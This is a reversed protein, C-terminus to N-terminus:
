HGDLYQCRPDRAGMHRYFFYSHAPCGGSCTQYHMCRSYRCITSNVARFRELVAHNLISDLGDRKINGLHFDTFGILLNCPFVSGDPLIALKVSGADCRRHTHLGYKHFGSAAVFGIDLTGQLQSRLISFYKMFDPFSFRTTHQRRGIIDEHLLFYRKVGLEGLYHILSSIEGRNASTLVSKVIPIKGESLTKRIGQIVLNFNNSGTIANHTESFGHLSFGIHILRTPMMALTHVMDPLSGNTSIHVSVGAGTVYRLFDSMYPILLPEGGLIDFEMIGWYMLKEALSFAERENM